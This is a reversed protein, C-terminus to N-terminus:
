RLEIACCRGFQRWHEVGHRILRSTTTKVNNVFRALSFMPPLSM